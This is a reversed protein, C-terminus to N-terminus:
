RIDLRTGRSIEVGPVIEGESKYHELIARKDVSTTTVTRIYEAPVLMEELVEVAPPNQRVSLTFRATDIRQTGIAQMHQLVYAKLRAANREDSKARERLRDAEAKRMAAMGDLHAVLGAIAEAKQAIKGALTGLQLALAEDTEGSDLLDLIQVYDASLDYLTTSREAAQLFARSADVLAASAVSPEQASVSSSWM